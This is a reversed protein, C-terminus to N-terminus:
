QLKLGGVSSGPCSVDRLLVVMVLLIFAASWPLAAKIYLLYPIISRCVGLSATPFMIGNFGPVVCHDPILASHAKKGGVYGCSGRVKLLSM